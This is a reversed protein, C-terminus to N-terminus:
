YLGGLFPADVNRSIAWSSAAETEGQVRM